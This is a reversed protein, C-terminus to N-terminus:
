RRTTACGFYNTNRELRIESVFKSSLSPFRM